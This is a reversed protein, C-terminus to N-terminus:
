LRNKLFEHIRKCGEKLNEMSTAYSIRFHGEVGFASGPVTGVHSEELLIKCFAISDPIERGLHSKINPFLYFAGMPENCHVGPMASVANMIFERRRLYEEYMTQVSSQDGSLAEVGAWQSISSPNSTTHSQLKDCASIVDKPGIAFGLRWGTMAYVKSFTNVVFTFERAKSFEFPSTHKHPPFVFCDYCEDFVLALNKRSCLDVIEEMTGRPIVAGSPNNPSNLILVRTHSTIRKEIEEPKILFQEEQRTPVFVPTGGALRVQDPFTVWYPEPILVEDGEQVLCCMLNYLAQKGGNTLIVEEAGFTQDYKKQFRAAVGERLKKIGATPTYKTFNSHIAEIGQAKVNEPTAFDPEGASFDIVDIGSAKMAAARSSMAITPSETIKQIRGALKM